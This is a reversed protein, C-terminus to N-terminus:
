HRRWSAVHLATIREVDGADAARLLLNNTM